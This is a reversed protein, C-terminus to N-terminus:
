ITDYENRRTEEIGKAFWASTEKLEETYHSMRKMICELQTIEQRSLLDLPDQENENYWDDFIAKRGDSDSAFAVYDIEDCDIFITVIYGDAEVRVHGCYVWGADSPITEGSAIKKLLAAIEQKPIYKMIM